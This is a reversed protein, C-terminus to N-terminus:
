EIIAYQYDNNLIYKLYDCQYSLIDFLFYRDMILKISSNKEAIKPFHKEHQEVIKNYLQWHHEWSGGSSWRNSKVATILIESSYIAIIEQLREVLEEVEKKKDEWLEAEFGLGKFKKFNSINAYIFCLFSMGFIISANKVNGEWVSALCYILFILGITFFISETDSNKKDM